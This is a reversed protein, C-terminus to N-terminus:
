RECIQSAHKWGGVGLIGGDDARPDMSWKKLPEISLESQYGEDYMELGSWAIMLANDTCLEPPPFLLRIRHYGRADLMSRLVHRLFRNSAVGGSVVIDYPSVGPLNDKPIGSDKLHLLIRSGLHEFAVRQAERALEQREALPMSSKRETSTDVEPGEAVLTNKLRLISSLLGSFSFLMRRSSKEGRRSQALPPSLSWTYGTARSELEDQRRKPAKYRSIMEAGLGFAFDELAKGYPIKLESETLIMRAVKDLYDGIAIDQTEALIRHDVLSRSEILMTHGGSVLLGLFSFRPELDNPNWGVNEGHAQLEQDFSIEGGLTACLRPTLAHAQMHNVGLLPVNWALALGKATNLGVDLNSRMGPGRTVTVFDPRRERFSISPDANSHSSKSDFCDAISKPSTPELKQVARQVLHGLEKRHSDLAVLPHIGNYGHPNATVKEHFLVNSRLRTSNAERSISLVAVSTDDCSTEIALTQIRWKTKGNSTVAVLSQGTFSRQRSSYLLSWIRTRRLGARPAAGSLSGVLQLIQAVTTTGGCLMFTNSYETFSSTHALTDSDINGPPFVLLTQHRANLILNLYAPKAQVRIM